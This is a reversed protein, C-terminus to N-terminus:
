YISIFRSNKRGILEELFRKLGKNLEWRNSDNFVYMMKNNEEKLLFNMSSKWEKLFAKKGERILCTKGNRHTRVNKRDM